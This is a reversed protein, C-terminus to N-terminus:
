RRYTPVRNDLLFGAPDRDIRRVLADLSRVLGRTEEGLQSLHSLGTTSFTTIGPATQDVARQVDRVVGDARGIIGLVDRAIDPILATTETVAISIQRATEQLDAFIPNLDTKLLSEASEFAGTAALMTEDIGDLATAAQATLTDIQALSTKIQDTLATADEAIFADATQVVTQAAVVTEDLTAITEGAQAFLTTAADLTQDTSLLTVEVAAGITDLRQTFNAIQQTANRATGTLDSFDALARDLKGSAQALNRLITAFNAQNEPNILAQLQGMVETADTILDPADDVLAQVSSRRSPIIPPNDDLSILPAANAAGGSLEIFAVGTVGQSKLQAVTAASIPTAADIEVGVFVLGPDNEWIRITTVKGVGVGNFLVDGAADLGSVNDFLVGYKAYQRDLQVSALWIFFGLVGFIGLLSFLGILIFNARTEM